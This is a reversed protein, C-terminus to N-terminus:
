DEESFADVLFPVFTSCFPAFQKQKITSWNESRLLVNKDFIVLEM